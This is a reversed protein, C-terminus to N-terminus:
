GGRTSLAGHERLHKSYDMDSSLIHNRLWAKLFSLLQVSLAVRGAELNQQFRAVTNTLEAHERRHDALRPYRALEMAREEENFHTRTYSILDGLIAHLAQKPAGRKMEDHLRNMIAVLRQHQRDFQPVNLEYEPKWDLFAM